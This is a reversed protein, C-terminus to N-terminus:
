EHTLFDVALDFRKLPYDRKDITIHIALGMQPYHYEVYTSAAGSIVPKEKGEAPGLIRNRFADSYHSFFQYTLSKFRKAINVKIVAPFDEAIWVEIMRIRNNQDFYLDIGICNGKLQCVSCSVCPGSLEGVTKPVVNPTLRLGQEQALRLAQSRMMGLMFGDISLTKHQWEPVSFLDTQTLEVAKVNQPTAQPRTGTACLVYPVLAAFLKTRKTIV